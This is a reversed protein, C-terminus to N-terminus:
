FRAQSPCAYTIALDEWGFTCSFSIFFTPVEPHPPIFLICFRLFGAADAM